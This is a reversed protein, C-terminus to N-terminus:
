ASGETPLTLEFCSGDPGTRALTLTGGHEEAIKHSIALGLGTGKGVPKTTFFPDFVSSADDASIGPGNDTVQLRVHHDREGM